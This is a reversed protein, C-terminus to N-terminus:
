HIDVAVHALCLGVYLKHDILRHPIAFEAIRGVFLSRNVFHQRVNASDATANLLAFVKVDRHVRQSYAVSCQPSLQPMRDPRSGTVDRASPLRGGSPVLSVSRRPVAAQQFQQQSIRFQAAINQWFQFRSVVVVQRRSRNEARQDFSFAFARCDVEVKQTLFVSPSGIASSKGLKSILSDSADSSSASAVRPLQSSFSTKVGQSQHVTSRRM